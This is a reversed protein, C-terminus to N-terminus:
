DPSTAPPQQSLPRVYFSEAAITETDMELQWTFRQGPVLPLPGLNVVFSADIESGQPIGPPRGVELNGQFEIPQTGAPGEATVTQGDANVLRLSFKHQENAETWDVKIFM